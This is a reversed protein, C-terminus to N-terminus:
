RRLHSRLFAIWIPATADEAFVVPALKTILDDRNHPRFKATRLDLTGNLCNLLWPDRDLRDHHVALMVKAVNITRISPANGTKKAFQFESRASTESLKGFLGCSVGKGLTLIQCMDDLRWQKGDFIIWKNWPGVFQVKGGHLAIFREANATDTQLKDSNAPKIDKSLWEPLEGDLAAACSRLRRRWLFPEDPDNSVADDKRRACKYGGCNTEHGHRGISEEGRNHASIAHEATHNDSQPRQPRGSVERNSGAVHLSTWWDCDIGAASRSHRKVVLALLDSRQAGEPFARRAKLGSVLTENRISM